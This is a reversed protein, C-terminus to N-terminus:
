GGLAVILQYLKDALIHLGQDTLHVRDSSMITSPLLGQAMYSLDTETPTLGYEYMLSTAGYVRWNFFRNTFANLLATDLATNVETHPNIVIINQTNMYEAAAKMLNVFESVDGVGGNTGTWIIVWEPNRYKTSAQLIVQTGVAVPVSHGINEYTSIRATTANVKAFTCKRGLIYCPTYKAEDFYTLGTDINIDVSESSTAPLNFATTVKVPISGLRQLIAGKGQGGIGQNIVEYNSGLLTQLYTPYNGATLSDGFCVVKKKVASDSSAIEISIEIDGLAYSQLGTSGGSYFIELIIYNPVFTVSDKLDKINLRKTTGSMNYFLKRNSTVSLNDSAALIWARFCYKDNISIYDWDDSEALPIVISVNGTEINAAFAGAASRYDWAGFAVSYETVKDLPYIHNISSVKDNVSDIATDIKSLLSIKKTLKRANNYATSNSAIYLKKGGKPITVTFSGTTNNRKAVLKNNKDLVAFTTFSYGGTIGQVVFVDGEECEVIKSWGETNYTEVITDGIACQGYDLQHIHGVQDIPIDIDDKTLHIIADENNELVVDKDKLEIKYVSHNVGVVVLYGDDPMIFVDTRVNGGTPTFIVTVKDGVVPATTKKIFSHHM